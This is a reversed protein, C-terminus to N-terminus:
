TRITSRAEDNPRPFEALVNRQRFIPDATVDLFEPYNPHGALHVAKERYEAETMAARNPYLLEFNALDAGVAEVLAVFQKMERFNAVQCTFSLQFFEIANTQRLRGIFTLNSLFKDWKAGRRLQEFTAPSAADTSIRVHSVLGHINSFKNWESESFLTGNSIITIKLDPSLKPDISHLLQRSPKSVLLEGTGNIVLVKLHPLVAVFKAVISDPTL